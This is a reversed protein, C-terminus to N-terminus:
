GLQSDLRTGGRLLNDIRMTISPGQSHWSRKAAEVKNREVDVLRMEDIKQLASLFEEKGVLEAAKLDAKLFLEWQTKGSKKAYVLALPIILFPGVILAILYFIGGAFAGAIVLGFYAFVFLIWKTMSTLKSGRLSQDFCFILASAIIPKWDKPTLQGKLTSALFIGERYPIAWDSRMRERTPAGSKTLTSALWRSDPVPNWEAWVVQRPRFRTISLRSCFEATVNLIDMDDVLM